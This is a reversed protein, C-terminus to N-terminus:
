CFYIGDSEKRPKLKAFFTKIDEEKVIEKRDKFGKLFDLFNDRLKNYETLANIQLTRDLSSLAELGKEYQTQTGGVKAQGLAEYATVTDEPDILFLVSLEKYMTLCENCTCLKQRFDSPWFTAGKFKKKVNKPKKCTMENHIIKQKKNCFPIESEEQCLKRKNEKLLENQDDLENNENMSNIETIVPIVADPTYLSSENTQLDNNTESNKEYTNQKCDTKDAINDAESKANSDLHNIKENSLTIHADKETTTEIESSQEIDTSVTTSINNGNLNEKVDSEESSIYEKASSEENELADTASEQITNQENCHLNRCNETSLSEGMKDESDGTEKNKSILDNAIVHDNADEDSLSKEKDIGKCEDKDIADKSEVFKEKNSSIKEDSQNAESEHIGTQNRIASEDSKVERTDTSQGVNETATAELVNRKELESANSELDHPSGLIKDIESMIEENTDNDPLVNNPITMIENSNIKNEVFKNKESPDHTFEKTSVINMSEKENIKLSDNISQNKEDVVPTENDELENYNSISDTDNVKCAEDEVEPTCNDKKDCDEDFSPSTEIKNRVDTDDLDKLSETAQDIDMSNLESNSLEQNSGNELTSMDMNDTGSKNLSLNGNCAKTAIENENVSIDVNVEENESNSNVSYCSYDHLFENKDMCGKCIMEAYHDNSPVVADLHSAHLWDECIICQIMEDEVSSEPDPYPRHCTCYLGSFNQNYKNDENLENKNPTFHCPHNSFKPNGCDCRFNRKTYLEVLEHNEHCNLSCALCIGARKTPDFKADNCCTMCAYVAQRKIYGKLFTCNKDDSAGLVANADEEFEQQEKLVDIMTVVPEGDCETVETEEEM